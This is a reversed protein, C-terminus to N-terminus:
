EEANEMAQKMALKKARLEALRAKRDADRKKQQESIPTNKKSVPNKPTKVIRKKKASQPTELKKWDRQKDEHIQQIKRRMEEVQLQIMEWFGELDENTPKAVENSKLPMEGKAKLCLNRFQKGLKDQCLLRTGGIITNIEDQYGM